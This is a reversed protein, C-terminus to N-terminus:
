CPRGFVMVRNTGSVGYGFQTVNTKLINRRHGPSDMWGQMARTDSTWGTAINEAGASLCFGQARIRQDFSSGGSGTHSFSGSQSMYNAHGQAAADLRRNQSLAPLGHHAREGNLMGAIGTGTAAVHTATAPHTTAPTTAPATSTSQVCGALLLGTTLLTYLKM